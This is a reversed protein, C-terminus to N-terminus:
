AAAAALLERTQEVTAVPRGIGRVLAAVAAVREANSGAVTGDAHELNNEFGVRLHGGLAAALGLAATETRGFACVAWPCEMDHERLFALLDAPSTVHGEAVYRGLVFLLFPREQPIAGRRRLEHFRAVDEPTYLIFQPSIANARLWGLFGTFRTVSADEPLLERLALSVAGPRLERVLAMQEAATYRGVAETTVQVAMDQGLREELVALWRRYTAADLSHTGEEDRIHFHVAAAGADRCAEMELALAEATVPLRAHDAPSLRAGNPAVMISCPQFFDASM